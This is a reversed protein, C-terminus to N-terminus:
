INCDASAENEGFRMKIVRAPNGEVISYPKVNHTVVACTAVVAGKGVTVDKLITANAGIWNDGEFIVNQDDQVNKAYVEVDIMAKDKIDTRHDGTIVTVNPGFMVNDGIIVRAQSSLFRAREGIAVHNGLDINKFAFSGGRGIYVNKGCKGFMAKKCPM